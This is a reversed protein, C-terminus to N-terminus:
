LSIKGDIRTHSVFAGSERLITAIQRTTRPLNDIDAAACLKEYVDPYARKDGKGQVIDAIVKARLEVSWHPDFLLAAAVMQANRAAERKPRAYCRNVLPQGQSVLMHMRRGVREQLDPPLEDARGFCLKEIVLDLLRSFESQAIQVRKDQARKSYKM